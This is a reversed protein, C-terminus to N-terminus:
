REHRVENWILKDEYCRECVKQDHYDASAKHKKCIECMNRPQEEEFLWNLFGEVIKM